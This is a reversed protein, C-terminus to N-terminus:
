EHKLKIIEILLRQYDNIFNAQAEALKLNLDRIVKIDDNVKEVQPIIVEKIITDM